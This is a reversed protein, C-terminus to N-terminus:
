PDINSKEVLCDGEELIARSGDELFVEQGAKLRVM